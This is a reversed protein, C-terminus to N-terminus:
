SQRERSGTMSTGAYDPHVSQPLTFAPRKCTELSRHDSWDLVKSHQCPLFPTSQNGIALGSVTLWELIRRSQSANIDGTAPLGWLFPHDIDDLCLSAEKLYTLDPSCPLSHLDTHGHANGHHCWTHHHPDSEVISWPSRSELGDFSPDNRKISPM